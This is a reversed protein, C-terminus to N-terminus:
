KEQGSSVLEAGAWSIGTPPQAATGKRPHCSSWSASHAVLCGQAPHSCFLEFGGGLLLLQLCQLVLWAPYDLLHLFQSHDQSQTHAQISLFFFLVFYYTLSNNHESSRPNNKHFTRLIRLWSPPSIVLLACGFTIQTLTTLLCQPLPSSSKTGACPIKLVLQTDWKSSLKTKFHRFSQLAM